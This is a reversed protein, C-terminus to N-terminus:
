RMHHNVNGGERSPNPHRALQPSINESAHHKRNNQWYGRVQHNAPAGVGAGVVAGVLAGKGVGVVAGTGAGVSAGTGGGVGAGVGTSFVPAGAGPV